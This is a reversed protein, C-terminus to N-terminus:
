PRTVSLHYPLDASSQGIDIRYTGPSTVYHGGLFVQFADASFTLVVTRTQGPALTVRNFSRLQEPPEGLSTPYHVYAQVVEAGVRSGTNTVPVAIRLPGGRLIRPTALHFTTYDLGFGFPFLPTVGTSQYWRYGLSSLSGLSVTGKVGPYLSTTNNAVQSASAPFTLPLRGSPDVAGTLIPAIAAGDVQGPYWAEVVAAV